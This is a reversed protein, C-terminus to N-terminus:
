SIPWPIFNGFDLLFSILLLVIQRFIDGPGPAYLIGVPKAFKGGYSFDLFSLVYNMQFINM